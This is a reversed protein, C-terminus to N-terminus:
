PVLDVCVGCIFSDALMADDGVRGAVWHSCRLHWLTTCQSCVYSDATLPCGFNYSGSTGLVTCLPCRTENHAPETAGVYDRSRVWRRYLLVWAPMTDRVLKWHNVPIRPILVDTETEPFPMEAVFGGNFIVQGIPGLRVLKGMRSAVNNTWRVFSMTRDGSHADTTQVLSTCGPQLSM